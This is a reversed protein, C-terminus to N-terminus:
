GSSHYDNTLTQQSQHATSLPPYMADYHQSGSESHGQQLQPGLEKSPLATNVAHQSNATSINKRMSSFSLHVKLKKGKMEKGHMGSIASQAQKLNDFTVFGHRKSKKSKKHVCVLASIVNGFPQFMM